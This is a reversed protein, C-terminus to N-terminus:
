TDGQNLFPELPSIVFSTPESGMLNVILLPKMLLLVSTEKSNKHKVMLKERIIKLSLLPTLHESCSGPSSKQEGRGKTRKRYITDNGM